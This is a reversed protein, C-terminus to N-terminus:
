AQWSAADRKVRAPVTAAPAADTASAAAGQILAAAADLDAESPKTAAGGGEPPVSKLTKDASAPDKSAGCGM